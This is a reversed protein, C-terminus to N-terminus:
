QGGAPVVSPDLIPADAARKPGFLRGPDRNLPQKALPAGAPTVSADATATPLEFGNADVAPRVTGVRTVEVNAKALTPDIKAFGSLQQVSLERPIADKVLEANLVGARDAKRVFEVAESYGGGLRAMLRLVEELTPACSEDKVVADGNVKMVRTVKARGQGAPVSVTFEDGVAIPPMPGNLEVKNGFLIIESRGASNLHVAPPSESAICHLWYSQNLLTGYLASHRADSLRLAIFAGQRLEADSNALMEVLRDTGPADDVSALATLCQARLAPHDEALRALEGMADRDTQGLYALAEAAAFRVWPSPSELGVRLSRRCDGGLAELKVAATLATSADMLEEEVKQRYTSGAGLPSYPVQRAVLLFRYHNLRYATPVNVLILERNKAEAVKLNPDATTHFTSNLREAIAAGIRPNQENQNLLLYYARNGTVHGGGAICGARYSMRGDSDAVPAAVKGNDPVFNGAVLPGKAKVWVSGPLFRGSPAAAAGTHLQSAINGTSDSTILECLSLIGGQLSTTKSEEPLTIQVDILEDKRSGPPVLASVLVLSTTRTPSDLLEKINLAQDKKAKKLNDELMTRWGGPPPSSGTGPLQYVLGVGSVTLSETNGVTTKSGITVVTDPDVPDEEIQSRPKLKKLPDPANKCGVMGAVSVAASWALFNRRSMGAALTWARNM